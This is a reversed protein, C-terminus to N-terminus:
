EQYFYSGSIGIGDGVAWTFPHTADISGLAVGSSGSWMYFPSAWNSYILSSAIFSVNGTDLLFVDFDNTYASVYTAPYPPPLGILFNPSISFGAGLALWAEWRVFNDGILQYQGVLSGAGVNIGSLAPTYVTRPGNIKSIADQLGKISTGPAAQNPGLGLTHHQASPESDVDSQQHAQKFNDQTPIVPGSRSIPNNGPGVPGNTNFDQAPRGSSNRNYM